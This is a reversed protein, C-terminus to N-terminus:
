KFAKLFVSDAGDCALIMEYDNKKEFTGNDLDNVFFSSEDM